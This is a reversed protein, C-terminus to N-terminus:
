HKAYKFSNDLKELLLGREYGKKWSYTIKREPSILVFKPFGGVDYSRLTRRDSRMETGLFTWEIQNSETKAKLDGASINQYYSIIELEEHHKEYIDKLESISSECPMCGRRSFVLLLHKGAGQEVDSLLISDGKTNFATFDNWYDGVELVKTTLYIEIPDNYKNEKITEGLTDYLERVTDMPLREYFRFLLYAATESDPHNSIFETVANKEKAVLNRYIVLNDKYSKSEFAGKKSDEFLKMKVDRLPNRIHKSESYWQELVNQTASNTSVHVSDIEGQITVEENGIYLIKSLRPIRKKQEEPIEYFELYFFSLDTVTGTFSFDVSSEGVFEKTLGEKTDWNYLNVRIHNPIDNLEVNVKYGKGEKKCSSSYVVTLVISLLLFGFCLVNKKM